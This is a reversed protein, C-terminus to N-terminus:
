RIPRVIEQGRRLQSGPKLRNIQEVAKLTGASWNQAKAYQALSERTPVRLDKFSQWGSQGGPTTSTIPPAGMPPNGYFGVAAAVIGQQDSSLTQGTLYKGLAAAVTTPDYGVTQLYAEVQQAWSANTPPTTVSGTGTIYSGTQPDYYGFQQPVGGGGAGYGGYEQSFPLGTAPDINPDTSATTSAGSKARMMYWIVIGAAGVAGIIMWNKTSKKM